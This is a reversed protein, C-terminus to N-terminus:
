RDVEPLIIDLSGSIAIVDALMEGVALQELVQVASFSGTRWRLRNPKNTGDSNIYCMTAGRPSEVYSTAENPLIKTLPTIKKFFLKTNEGCYPCDPSNCGCNTKKISLKEISGGPIRNIANQLLEISQKMEDMRQLYRAYCDGATQTPIEFSFDNYVGYSANKRIDFPIGSARLNPGTIGFDLAKEPSLIGINKTRALFIPNKTILEHYEEIKNSFDDCFNSVDQMWGAPMDSKVGGICYYNYMMRQGTLSEFLKLITERERFCYFLPSSAGLDLLFTGLWLLHSAIRNLEMTILRLYEARKPIKISLLQEIAYCYAASNFFGSIYDVRDVMPLYQQYNRNEAIKEMGRHLYGIKAELNQIKEGELEAILRLVGHTSPHQPGINIKLEKKITM